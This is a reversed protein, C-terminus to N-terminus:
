GSTVAEKQKLAKTKERQGAENGKWMTTNTDITERYSKQGQEETGTKRSESGIRETEKETNTM